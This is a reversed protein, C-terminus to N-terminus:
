RRSPKLRQYITSQLSMLTVIWGAQWQRLVKASINRLTVKMKLTLGNMAVVLNGELWLHFTRQINAPSSTFLMAPM